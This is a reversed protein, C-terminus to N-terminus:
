STSRAPRHTASNGELPFARSMTKTGAATWEGEVGRRHPIEDCGGVGVIEQRGYIVDRVGADSARLTKSSDAGAPWRSSGGIESKVGMVCCCQTEVHVLAGRATGAHSVWETGGVAAGFLPDAHREVHYEAIVDVVCGRGRHRPVTPQRVVSGSSDSDAARAARHPSSSEVEGRWVDAQRALDGAGLASEDGLGGAEAPGQHRWRQQSVTPPGPGAEGAPDQRFKRPPRGRSRWRRPSPPSLNRQDASRAAIQNSRRYRSEPRRSFKLSGRVM